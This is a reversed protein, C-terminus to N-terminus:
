ITSQVVKEFQGGASGTVVDSRPTARVLTHVEKRLEPERKVLWNYYNHYCVVLKVVAVEVVAVVVVAVVAM